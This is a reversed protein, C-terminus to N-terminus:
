EDHDADAGGVRTQRHDGEEDDGDDGGRGGLADVFVAAGAAAGGADDGAEDALEEAGDLRDFDGGGFLADDVAEVLEVLVAALQGQAVAEEVFDEVGDEVVGGAEAGADDEDEGPM